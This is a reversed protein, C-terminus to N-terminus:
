FKLHWKTIISNPWILKNLFVLLMLHNNSNNPNLNNNNNNNFYVTDWIRPVTYRDRKETSIYYFNLNPVTRM